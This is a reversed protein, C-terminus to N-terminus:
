GDPHSGKHALVEASQCGGHSDCPLCMKTELGQGTTEATTVQWFPIETQTSDTGSEYCYVNQDRTFGLLM